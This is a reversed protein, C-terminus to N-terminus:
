RTSSPWQPVSLLLPSAGPTLEMRQPSQGPCLFCASLAAEQLPPVGSDWPGPRCKSAASIQSVSLCPCEEGQIKQGWFVSAGPDFSHRLCLSPGLVSGLDLCPTNLAPRSVSALLPRLQDRSVWPTGWPSLRASACSRTGVRIRCFWQWTHGGTEGSSTGVASFLLLFICCQSLLVAGALAYTWSPQQRNESKGPIGIQSGSTRGSMSESNEKKLFAFNKSPHTPLCVVYVCVCSYQSTTRPPKTALDHRVRAVGHVTAECAGRDM